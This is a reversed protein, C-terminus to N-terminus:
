EGKEFWFAEVRDFADCDIMVRDFQTSIWKNKLCGDKVFVFNDFDDRIYKGYKQYVETDELHVRKWGNQLLFFTQECIEEVDSESLNNIKMQKPM